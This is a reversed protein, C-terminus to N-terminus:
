SLPRVDMRELTWNWKSGNCGWCSTVLNSLANPGGSASPYIHDVVAKSWVWKAYDINTLRGATGRGKVVGNRISLGPTVHGFQEVLAAVQGRKGHSFVPIDCYGCRYGDRDLVERELRRSLPGPPPGMAEAPSEDWRPGLLRRQVIWRDWISLLRVGDVSAWLREALDLKDRQLGDFAAHTALAAAAVFPLDEPEGYHHAWAHSPSYFM